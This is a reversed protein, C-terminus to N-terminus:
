DGTRPENRIENVKRESKLPVCLTENENRPMLCSCCCSSCVSRGCSIQTLTVAFSLRCFKSRRYVVSAFVFGFKFVLCVNVFNEFVKPRIKAKMENSEQSTHTTPRVAKRNTPRDTPRNTSRKASPGIARLVWPECSLPSVQSATKSRSVHWLVNTFDTKQARLWITGILHHRLTICM